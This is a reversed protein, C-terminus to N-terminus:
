VLLFTGRLFLYSDLPDSEPRFDGSCVRGSHKLRVYNLIGINVLNFIINLSLVRNVWLFFGKRHRTLAKLIVRIVDILGCLFLLYIIM